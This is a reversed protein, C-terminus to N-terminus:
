IKVEDNRDPPDIELYEKYIRDRYEKGLKNIESIFLQYTGKGGVFDWFEEGILVVKDETMNFWRFPFSWKYDEKKHYPNYPLVFFASSVQLPEMASLKLIKEKSVKTIDSNPLPSKLEFSYKRNNSLDEAYVDCIVTM